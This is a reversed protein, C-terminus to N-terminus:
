WPIEDDSPAVATTATAPEPRRARPPPDNPPENSCYPVDGDAEAEGREFPAEWGKAFLRHNDKQQGFKLEHRCDDCQVSYYEYGQPTRYRLSLNPSECNGCRKTGFMVDCQALFQFTSNLDKIDLEIATNPNVQYTVKM